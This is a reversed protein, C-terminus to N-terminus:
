NNLKIYKVLAYIEKDINRQLIVIETKHLNCLNPAGVSKIIIDWILLINYTVIPIFKSISPNVQKIFFFSFGQANLYLNKQTWIVNILFM